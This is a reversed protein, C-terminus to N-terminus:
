TTRVQYGCRPCQGASERRRVRRTAWGLLIFWGAATATGVALLVLSAREAEFLLALTPRSGDRPAWVLGGWGYWWRFWLGPNHPMPDAPGYNPRRLYNERRFSAVAYARTITSATSGPGIMSEEDGVVALYLPRVGSQRPAVRLLERALAADAEPGTAAALEGQTQDLRAVSDWTSTTPGPWNGVQSMTSNIRVVEEWARGNWVGAGLLLLLVALWATLVMRGRRRSRALILRAALALALWATVLILAPVAFAQPRISVSTQIGGTRQPAPEYVLNGFAWHWPSVNVGPSQRTVPILGSKAIADAYEPSRDWRIWSTPWGIARSEHRMQPGGVFGASICRKGPLGPFGLKVVGLVREVLKADTVDGAAIREVEDLTVPPLVALPFQGGNTFGSTTTGRAAVVALIAIV